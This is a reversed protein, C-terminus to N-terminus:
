QIYLHPMIIIQTINEQIRCYKKVYTNMLSFCYNQVLNLDM